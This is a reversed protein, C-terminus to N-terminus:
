FDRCHPHLFLDDVLSCGVLRAFRSDEYYHVSANQFFVTGAESLRKTVGGNSQIKEKSQSKSGAMRTKQHTPIALELKRRQLIRRAAVSSGYSTLAHPRAKLGSKVVLSRLTQIILRLGRNTGLETGYSEM